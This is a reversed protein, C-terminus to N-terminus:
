YTVEVKILEVTMSALFHCRLKTKRKNQKMAGHLQQSKRDGVAKAVFNNETGNETSKSEMQIIQFDISLDCLLRCSDPTNDSHINFVTVLLLDITVLQSLFRNSSFCAVSTQAGLNVNKEKKWPFLKWSLNDRNMTSDGVCWKWRFWFKPYPMGETHRLISGILRHIQYLQDIREFNTFRFRIFTFLNSSFPLSHFTDFDYIKLRCCLVSCKKSHQSLITTVCEPNIMLLFEIWHSSSLARFRIHLSFCQSHFFSSYCVSRPFLFCFGVCQRRSYVCLLLVLHCKSRFTCPDCESTSHSFGNEVTTRISVAHFKFQFPFRISDVVKGSAIQNCITDVSLLVCGGDNAGYIAIGPIKRTRICLNFSLSCFIFMSVDRSLTLFRSVSVSPSVVLLWWPSQSAVWLFLRLPKRDRLLSRGGCLLLLLLLWRVFHKSLAATVLM